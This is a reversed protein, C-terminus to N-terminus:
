FSGHIANYESVIIDNLNEADLRVLDPSSSDGYDCYEEEGKHFSILSEESSTTAMIEAEKEKSKNRM